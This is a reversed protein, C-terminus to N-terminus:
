SKGMKKRSLWPSGKVFFRLMEDAAKTIGVRPSMGIEGETLAKGSDVLKFGAQDYTLGNYSLDIGLAQCLKGPGNLLNPSLLDLGRNKLMSAEGFLPAGARILIAEARGKECTSINMCYNLGYSLYVYCTGGKEFMPWNRKTLGRYAHSAPDESGLYVEVEVLEVGVPGLSSEVLLAKGLLKKAIEVTDSLYFHEPLPPRAMWNDVVAGSGEFLNQKAKPSNPELSKM